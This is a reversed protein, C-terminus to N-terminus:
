TDARLREVHADFEEKTVFELDMGGDKGTAGPETDSGGGPSEFGMLVDWDNAGGAVFDGKEFSWVEFRVGGKVATLKLPREGVIKYTPVTLTM